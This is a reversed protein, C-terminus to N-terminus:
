IRTVARAALKKELEGVGEAVEKGTGPTVTISFARDGKRVGLKAYRTGVSVFYSEDGVGGSKGALPGHTSLQKASDFAARTIVMVTVTRAGLDFDNSGSFFCSVKSGMWPRGPLSRIGLIKSVEDPTLLSCPEAADARSAALLGILALLPLTAITRM